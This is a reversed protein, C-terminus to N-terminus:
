VSSRWRVVQLATLPRLYSFPVPPVPVELSLHTLLNSPSCLEAPLRLLTCCSTAEYMVIFQQWCSSRGLEYAIHLAAM